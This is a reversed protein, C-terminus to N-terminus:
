HLNGDTIRGLGRAMLILERGQITKGDYEAIAKAADDSSAMDIIACGRCTGKSNVAMEVTLTRGAGAFLDWLDIETLNEPMNCAFVSASDPKPEFDDERVPRQTFDPSILEFEAEITNICAVLHPVDKM